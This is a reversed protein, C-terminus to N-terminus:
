TKRRMNLGTLLIHLFRETAKEILFVAKEMARSIGMPSDIISMVADIGHKYVAEYGGGISGCIAVVPVGYKKALRAVGIPAKGYVTQVDIKGEGTIVLDAEKIKKELETLGTIVKVGEKLRAGAVAMLGTSIGGAAGAGPVDKIDAGIDRKIIGAYNRLGKDLIKVMRADAGKQPGYIYAAGRSGTLPNRVDCAIIVEANKLRTDIGGADIRSIKILEGGGFGIERGNKKIFKVGLAQLCGIGGDVTASGGIGLIIKRVGRDLASKILQGTGYTTTFFPNRKGPEILHLGSAQAMEIIGTDELIGYRANIKEGQPGTVKVRYIKIRANAFKIADIFGDGGDSLPIKEVRAAPLVNLIGREMAKAADTASCSDKFSNPAVLIKM